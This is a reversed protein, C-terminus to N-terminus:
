AGHNNLRVPMLGWKAFLDRVRPWKSDRQTLREVMESFHWWDAGDVPPGYHDWHSLEEEVGHDTLHIYLSKGCNECHRLTDSEGTWGGNVAAKNWEVAKRPADWCPSNSNREWADCITCRHSKRGDEEVFAHVGPSIADGRLLNLHCFVLTPLAAIIGICEDCYDEDCQNSDPPSLWFLESQEPAESRSAAYASIFERDSDSIPSTM